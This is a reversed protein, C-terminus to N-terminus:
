RIVICSRRREAPGFSGCASSVMKMLDATSLDTQQLTNVDVAILKAVPCAVQFLEMQIRTEQDALGDDLVVGMPGPRAGPPM